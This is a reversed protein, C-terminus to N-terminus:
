RRTVGGRVVTLLFEVVRPDNSQGLWFLAKRQLEEKRVFDSTESWSAMMSIEAEDFFLKLLKRDCNMPTDASRAPSCPDDSKTLQDHYDGYLDRFMKFLGIYMQLTVGLTRHFQAVKRLSEFRSDIRYDHDALIRSDHEPMVAMYHQLADNISDIAAEWAARLTTTYVTYGGAKAREIAGDVLVARAAVFASPISSAEFQSASLGISKPVPSVSTAQSTPGQTNTRRM